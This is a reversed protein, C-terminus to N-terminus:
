LNGLGFAEKQYYKMTSIYFLDPFDSTQVGTVYNVLTPAALLPVVPAEDEFGMTELNQQNM